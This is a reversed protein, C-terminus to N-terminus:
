SSKGRFKTKGKSSGKAMTSKIQDATDKKKQEQVAMLRDAEEYREQLLLNAIKGNLDHESVFAQDKSEAAM